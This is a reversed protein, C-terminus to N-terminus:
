LSVSAADADPATALIKSPSVSNITAPKVDTVGIPSTCSLSLTPSEFDTGTVAIQTGGSAIISGPVVSSIVPPPVVTITLGNELVGVRSNASDIVILDYIGPPVGAPVIATVLEKSILAM